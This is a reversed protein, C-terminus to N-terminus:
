QRHWPHDETRPAWKRHWDASPAPLLDANAKEGKAFVLVKVTKGTGHPLVVAGRVQQDAHRGDVGLRIHAEVTEDFKAVATKKVLSIAEDADYLKTRDINKASEVYRKGRKM